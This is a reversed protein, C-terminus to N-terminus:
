GNIEEGNLGFSIIREEFSVQKGTLKRRNLEMLKYNAVKIFYFYSAGPNVGPKDYKSKVDPNYKGINAFMVAIIQNLVNESEGRMAPYKSLRYLVLARFYKYLAAEIVRKESASTSTRLAKILDTCHPEPYFDHKM